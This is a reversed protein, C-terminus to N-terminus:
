EPSMGATLNVVSGTMAGASRSALFAVTEAVQKLSPLQGTMTTASAGNVWDKVALGSQQAKSAFLEGTYSGADLAEPIAHSRICLVRMGRPGFESALAKSFAEIGACGVIHGLHGPVAMKAAPAVITIFTRDNDGELTSLAKAINFMSKLFPSYGDEFEDITLEDITKGQDHLFSTANVTVNLRHPSIPLKHIANLTQKSDLANLLFIDATGGANRIKEATTTLGPENRAGLWVKYGSKALTLATASGIAGSGGIIVANKDM